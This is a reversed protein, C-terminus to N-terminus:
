SYLEGIKVHDLLVDAFPIGQIYQHAIVADGNSVPLYDLMMGSRNIFQVTGNPTSGDAYEMHLHVDGNTLTQVTLTPYLPINDNYITEEPITDNTWFITDKTNTNYYVRDFNLFSENDTHVYFKVIPRMMRWKTYRWQSMDQEPFMVANIHLLTNQNQGLAWLYQAGARYTIDDRLMSKSMTIEAYQNLEDSWVLEGYYEISTDSLLTEKTIVTKGQPDSGFPELGYLRIVDQSVAVAVIPIRHRADNVQYINPM